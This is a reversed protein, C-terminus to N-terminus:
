LRAKLFDIVAQAVADSLVGRVDIDHQRKLRSWEERVDKRIDGSPKAQALKDQIYPVFYALYTDLERTTVAKNALKVSAEAIASPDGSKLATTLQRELGPYSRGPGLVESISRARRGGM